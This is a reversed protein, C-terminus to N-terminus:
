LTGLFYSLFRYADKLSSLNMHENETHIDLATAGFTVIDMTPDYGKFIGTELGGHTAIERMDVDFMDHFAKEFADRLPSDPDYSWGEHEGGSTMEFDLLASLSALQNSMYDRESKLTGRLSWFLTLEDDEIYVVGLNLSYEPLHDIKPSYAQVSKPALFIANVINWTDERSYAFDSIANEVEVFIEEDSFQYEEKVTTFFNIVEDTIDTDTAILCTAYVPIANPKEGGKIDVLHYKIGKAMLHQLIRGMLVNANAREQNIADGSHGGRLGKVTLKYVDHHNAVRRLPKTLIVDRGGCSSITTEGFTEGDLSIMRHAKLWQPDIGAAGYLGAEEQVTFVCVLDPHKVNKDDMLALMLAVGMGDDAGLTTHNAYLWGNEIHLELPDSAFNHKSSTAKACVMDMHAQLMIPDKEEYGQSAKQYIVVNDMKDRKYELHHKKAFAELYNALEKENYSGHPIQTLQEFYHFVPINEDLVAM